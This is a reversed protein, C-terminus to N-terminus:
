PQSVAAKACASRSSGAPTMGGVAILAKRILAKSSTERARLNPEVGASEGLMENGGAMARYVQRNEINAERLFTTVEVAFRM